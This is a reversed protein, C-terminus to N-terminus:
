HWCKWTLSFLMEINLRWKSQNLSFWGTISAISNHPHRTAAVSGVRCRCVEYIHLTLTSARHSSGLVPLSRGRFCVKSVEQSHSPHLCPFIHRKSRDHCVLGRVQDSSHGTQADQVETQQSFPEVSASRFHSVVRWGERSSHIVPQLFRVREHPPGDRHGGEKLSYRIITGNGFGARSGGPPIWRM